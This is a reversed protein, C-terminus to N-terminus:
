KTKAPAKAKSDSYSFAYNLENLNLEKSLHPYFEFETDHERHHKRQANWARNTLDELEGDNVILVHLFILLERKEVKESEGSFLMGLLPIDGLLPVKTRQKEVRDQLLGGIVITQGSKIEVTAEIKKKLVQPVENPAEGQGAFNILKEVEGVDPKLNLQVSGDTYITPTVELIIGVEEFEITTQQTTAGTSSDTEVQTQRFPIKRIIELKATKANSCLLNPSSLLRVNNVRAGMRVGFGIDDHNLVNVGTVQSLESDPFLNFMNATQGGDPLPPTFQFDGGDIAFQKTGFSTGLVGEVEHIVEVFHCRIYAQQTPKDAEALFKEVKPFTDPYDRVVAIKQKEDVNVKGEESLLRQIGNSVDDKELRNYRFIRVEALVNYSDKREKNLTGAYEEIKKINDEFDTVQFSNNEESIDLKGIKETLMQELRGKIKSIPVFKVQFSKTVLSQETKAQDKIQADDMVKIFESVREINDKTDIVLFANAEKNGIFKGEQSLLGKVQDEIKELRLRQLIFTKKDLKTARKKRLKYVNEEEEVLEYGYSNALLRLLKLPSFDGKFDITVKEEIKDVILLNIGAKQALMRLMNDLRADTMKIKDSKEEEEKEQASIFPLVVFAVCFILGITIIKKFM